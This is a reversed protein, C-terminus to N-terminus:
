RSTLRRHSGAARGPGAHQWRLLPDASGQHLLISRSHWQEGQRLQVIWQIGAYCVIVRTKGDSLVAVVRPYDNSAESLGAKRGRRGVVNRPDSRVTRSYISSKFRRRTRHSPCPAFFYDMSISFPDRRIRRPLGGM